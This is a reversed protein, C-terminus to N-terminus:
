STVERNRFLALGALLLGATYAAAYLGAWGVYSLPIRGGGSLADVLWVHQWDPLLAAAGAAWFRGQAAAKGFLPGNVLGLLFVLAALVLVPVASLRVALALTLAAMVVLAFFVLILAPALKLFTAGLPLVDRPAPLLASLVISGLLAAVLFGQLASPFPRNKWYNLLGALLLSALVAAGIIGGARADIQYNAVGVRTSLIAAAGM